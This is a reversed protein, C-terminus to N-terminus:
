QRGLKVLEDPTYSAGTGKQIMRIDAWDRRYDIAAFGRSDKFEAALASRTFDFSLFAQRIRERLAPDLDHCVGFATRPFPRSAYIVKLAGHDIQGRQRMREIVTSAVPAADYDRNLVGVVSNEHKGSYLVPYDQGPLVGLATLLLRPATDGSYSSPAVHAVRRGKLDAISSIPSDTRAIVQLSYGTSGDHRQIAVLPVFGALNVAYPASSGGVGAIHLRGARIAEVQEAHSETPHWRIKRGTVKSLHVILAAFKEQYLAPDDVPAYSFVLTAPDKLRGRERPADAILDRDADCYRSDLDGRHPCGPQTQAATQALAPVPRLLSALGLVATPAAILLRRRLPEIVTPAIVIM